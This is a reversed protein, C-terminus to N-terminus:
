AVPELKWQQNNGGHKPFLGLKTKIAKKGEWLDVVFNKPTKLFYTNARGPVPDLKWPSAAKRASVFVGSADAHYGM